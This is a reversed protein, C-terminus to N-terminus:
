NDKKVLVERGKTGNEPGIIGEEELDDIYRAAKGYGIRFKRELYSTSAKQSEIVHKKVIEYMPDIEEKANGSGAFAYKIKDDEAKEDATRLDMFKPDYTVKSQEKWYNCIAIIEEKSVFVGQVRRLDSTDPTLLLMDGNNLLKEAGSVDIVTRSDAQSALRFTMRCPFNNKITGNVVNVDPRQTAIILHIGFARGLQSIRQVNDEFEQHRKDLMLEAFEDIFCIIYPIIPKGQKELKANYEHLDNEGVETFERQRKALEIVLKDLAVRAKSCESIIPCLLHPEDKYFVTDLQKPDIIMIRLEEPTYRMLLSILISNACVTKGSNTSGSIMCHPMNAIGYFLAGEGIDQGVPIYLKEKRNPLKNILEKLVVMGREPNPVELGITGIKGPIPSIIRLSSVGIALKIDDQLAVFTSVRVGPSLVVEFRTVAPGLVYGQLNAKVGLEDLKEQIFIMRDEATKSNIEDASSDIPDNLLSIPPLIYKKNSQMLNDELTITNDDDYFEDEKKDDLNLNDEKEVISIDSNNVVVTTDLDVEENSTPMFNSLDVTSSKEMEPFNTMNEEQYIRDEDIQSEGHITEFENYKLNSFPAESLCITQSAEDLENGDNLECKRMKSDYLSDEYCALIARLKDNAQPAKSQYSFNIGSIDIETTELLSDEEKNNVLNNENVSIEKEKKSALKAEKKAQQEEKLKSLKNKFLEKRAEKKKVKEEKEKKTDVLGLKKSKSAIKNSVKKVLCILDYGLPIIFALGLLITLGIVVIKTILYHMDTFRNILGLIFYGIAGGNLSEVNVDDFLTYPFNINFIEHYRDFCTAVTMESYEDKITISALIFIFLSVLVLNQFGKLYNFISKKAILLCIGTALLVITAFLSFRGFLYTIPFALIGSLNNTFMIFISYVILLLGCLRAITEKTEQEITKRVRQKKM